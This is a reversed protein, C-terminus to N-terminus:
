NSLQEFDQMRPLKLLSPAWFGITILSSLRGSEAMLTKFISGAIIPLLKNSVASAPVQPPAVGIVTVAPIKLDQLSIKIQYDLGIM